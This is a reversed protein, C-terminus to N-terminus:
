LVEDDEKFVLASSRKDYNMIPLLFKNQLHKGKNGVGFGSGRNGGNGGFGASSGM